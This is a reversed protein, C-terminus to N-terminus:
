VLRCSPAGPPSRLMRVRALCPQFAASAPDFPHARCFLRALNLPKGAPASRSAQRRKTVLDWLECLSSEPRLRERIRSSTACWGRRRGDCVVGTDSLCNGEFPTAGAPHEV